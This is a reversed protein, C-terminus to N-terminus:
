RPPTPIRPGPSVCNSVSLRIMKSLIERSFRSNTSISLCFLTCRFFRPLITIRGAAQKVLRALMETGETVNAAQGSTLLRHCGMSIIDELAQQPNRCQDFARHFTVSMSQAQGMLWGCVNTDIDGEPTLAGIVVGSAGLMHAIRVDNMMCRVEDPSYVFDGGRPRILVHVHVGQEVAWEIMGASPTVGDLELAQCLEIRQAGGEVAARVSQLDACCVELIRNRKNDTKM